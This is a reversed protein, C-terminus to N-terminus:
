KKKTVKNTSKNKNKKGVNKVNKKKTVKNESVKKVKKRLLAELVPLEQKIETIRLEYKEM